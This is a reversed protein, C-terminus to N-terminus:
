HLNQTAFQVVMGTPFNFLIYWFLDKFWMVVLPSLQCSCMKWNTPCITCACPNSCSEPHPHLSPVFSMCVFCFLSALLLCFLLSIYFTPSCLEMWEAGQRGCGQVLLFRGGQPGSCYKCGSGILHADDGVCISM